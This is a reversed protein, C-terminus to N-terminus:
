QKQTSLLVKAIELVPELRESIATPEYCNARKTVGMRLIKEILTFIRDSICKEVEVLMAKKQGAQASNMRSTVFALLEQSWETVMLVIESHIGEQQEFERILLTAKNTLEGINRLCGQYDEAGEARERAASIITRLKDSPTVAGTVRLEALFAADEQSVRFSYPVTKTSM